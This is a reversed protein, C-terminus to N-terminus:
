CGVLTQEATTAYITGNVAGRSRVQEDFAFRQGTAGSSLCTDRLSVTQRGVMDDMGHSRTVAITDVAFRFPQPRTVLPRQAEGFLVAQARNRKRADGGADVAIGLVLRTLDGDIGHCPPQGCVFQWVVYCETTERILIVFQVGVPQCSGQC